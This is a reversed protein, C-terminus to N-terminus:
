SSRSTATATMIRSTSASSGTNGASPRDASSSSAAPRRLALTETGQDDFCILTGEGDESKTQISFLVEPRADGDLDSIMIHALVARLRGRPEEGSLADRYITRPSSIPSAPRSPGSSGDPRISSSSSRAASTSIRRSPRLPQPRGGSSSSIPRPPSGPWARVRDPVAPALLRGSRPREPQSTGGTSREALWEDIQDKYAFVKAKSDRELRHVPLGYRQEWRVCTRVDRDLYAAIEKWSTLINEKKGNRGTM